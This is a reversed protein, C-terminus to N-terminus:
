QFIEFEWTHDYSRDNTAFFSISLVYDQGSIFDGDLPTIEIILIDGEPITDEIDPHSTLVWTIAVSHGDASLAVQDLILSNIEVTLNLILSTSSGVYSNLKIDPIPEYITIKWTHDYLHDNKAIFSISLVYEKESIFDGDLPTVQIILIDGKPITEQTDPHSTVVWLIMVSQIDASLVVQGLILSNREVTLNLTLSTSSGEHSNLKLDPVPEFYSGFMLYGGVLSGAILLFGFIVIPFMVGIPPRIDKPETPKEKVVIKISSQNTEDSM